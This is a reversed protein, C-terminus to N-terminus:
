RNVIVQSEVFRPGMWDKWFINWLMPRNTAKQIKMRKIDPNKSLKDVAVFIHNPILRLLDVGFM